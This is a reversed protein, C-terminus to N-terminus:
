SIFKKLHISNDPFEALIKKNATVLPINFKRALYVFECDYASCTSQHVLNLVQGSVVEYENDELLATAQDMIQLADHYSIIKKRLYFALINRFESRWLVPAIWHSDQQLLAEAHITHEGELYLYAIVNTDVVIM